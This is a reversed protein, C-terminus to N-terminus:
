MNAKPTSGGAAEPQGSRGDKPGLLANLARMLANQDIGYTQCAGQITDVDSVACNSCGGLQFEALVEAVRPHVQLAEAITMAPEFKLDGAQRRLDLRLELLQAELRSRVETMEARLSILSSDVSGLRQNLAAARRVALYAVVLALAAVILAATAM